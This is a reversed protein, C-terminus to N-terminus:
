LAERVLFFDCTRTRYRGTEDMNPRPQDPSTLPAYTKDNEVTLTKTHHPPTNTDTKNPKDAISQSKNSNDTKPALMPALMPALLSQGDDTGTAKGQELQEDTHLSLIPLKDLAGAVDLLRPDTYVNATLSPDSHRMAAQATRLPVGAKSLHTGFSHRFAHVDVTRGRQDRKTIGGLRLDRDLIRVLATPVTFLLTDASLGIPVSKGMRRAGNQAIKLKHDM